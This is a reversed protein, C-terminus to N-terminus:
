ECQVAQVNKQWALLFAAALPAAQAGGTMDTDTIQVAFALNRCEAAITNKPLFGVFWASNGDTAMGTEATGTKAMLALRIERLEASNFAAKATGHQVVDQMALRLRDLRIPLKSPPKSTSPLVPPNRLLRSVVQQGTGIAAAVQAMHLPTVQMGQGLAALRVQHADVTHAFRGASSLLFDSKYGIVNTAGSGDLAVNDGFGLYLASAMIPRVQGIDQSGFYRLDAFNAQGVQRLLSADYRTTLWAFWSNVSHALASRLGFRAQQAYVFPAQDRFNPVHKREAICPTPFCPADMSFGDDRGWANIQSLSTGDLLSDLQKDNQALTELALSGVLKFTSGPSHRNKGDHQWPPLPKGQLSQSVASLIEGSNADLVILRATRRQPVKVQAGYCVSDQWRGQQLGHCHVVANALAQMSPEISLIQTNSRNVQDRALLASHQLGGELAFWSQLGLQDALQVSRGAQFLVEGNRAAITRALSMPREDTKFTAPRWHLAEGGLNKAYSIQSENTGSVIGRNFAVIQRRVAAGDAKGYMRKLVPRAAEYPLNLDTRRQGLEQAALADRPAIQLTGNAAKYVVRTILASEFLAQDELPLPANLPVQWNGLPVSAQWAGGTGSFFHVPFKKAEANLNGAQYLTLSLRSGQGQPLQCTQETSTIHLAYRFGLHAKSVPLNAKPIEQWLLWAHQRARLPQNSDVGVPPMLDSVFRWNPTADASIKWKLGSLDTGMLGSIELSPLAQAMVAPLLLANRHGKTASAQLGQWSALQLPLIRSPADRALSRQTCLNIEESHGAQNALNLLLQGKKQSLLWIGPLRPLELKEGALWPQWQSPITHELLQPHVQQQLRQMFFQALSIALLFCLLLAICISLPSLASLARNAHVRPLFRLRINKQQM